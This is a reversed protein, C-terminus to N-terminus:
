ATEETVRRAKVGAVVQKPTPVKYVFPAVFAKVVRYVRQVRNKISVFPNFGKPFLDRMWGAILMSLARLGADVLVFAASSLLVRLCMVILHPM